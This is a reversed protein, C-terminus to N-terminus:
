VQAIDAPKIAWPGEFWGIWKLTVAVGGATKEQLRFKKATDLGMIFYAGTPLSVAGVITYKKNASAEGAAVYLQLDTRTVGSTWEAFGVVSVVVTPVIASVDVATETDIVPSGTFMATASEYPRFLGKLVADRFAPFGM